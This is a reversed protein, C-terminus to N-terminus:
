EGTNGQLKRGFLGFQRPVPPVIEARVQAAPTVLQAQLL